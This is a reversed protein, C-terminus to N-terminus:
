QILKTQERTNIIETLKKRTKLLEKVEKEDPKWKSFVNEISLYALIATSFEINKLRNKTTEDLTM